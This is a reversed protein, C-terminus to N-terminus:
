KDESSWYPVIRTACLAPPTPASFSIRRWQDKLASSLLFINIKKSLNLIEEGCAISHQVKICDPIHEKTFAHLKEKCEM